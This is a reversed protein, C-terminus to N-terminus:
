AEVRDLCVVIGDPFYFFQIAQEAAVSEEVSSLNACGPFAIFRGRSYEKSLFYCVGSSQVGLTDLRDAWNKLSVLIIVVSRVRIRKKPTMAV